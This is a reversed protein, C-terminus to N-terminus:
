RGEVSGGPADGRTSARRLARLEREFDEIRGKLNQMHESVTTRESERVSYLDWCVALATRLTGIVQRLNQEDGAVRSLIEGAVEHMQLALEAPSPAGAGLPASVAPSERVDPFAQEIESLALGIALNLRALAPHPDPGVDRWSSEPISFSDAEMRSRDDM